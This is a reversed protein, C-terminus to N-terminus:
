QKNGLRKSAVEPNTMAAHLQARYADSNNIAGGAAHFPENVVACFRKNVSAFMVPLPSSGAAQHVRTAKRGLEVTLLRREQRSM